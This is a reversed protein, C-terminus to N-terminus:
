AVQVRGTTWYTQFKFYETCLEDIAVVVLAKLSMICCNRSSSTRV